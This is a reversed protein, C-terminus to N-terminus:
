QLSQLPKIFRDVILHTKNFIYEVYYAHISIHFYPLPTKESFLLEAWVMLIVDLPVDYFIVLKGM